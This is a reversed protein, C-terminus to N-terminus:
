ATTMTVSNRYDCLICIAKSMRKSAFPLSFCLRINEIKHQTYSCENTKIDDM